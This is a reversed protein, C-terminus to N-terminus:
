PRYWGCDKGDRFISRKNKKCFYFTHEDEASQMLCTNKLLFNLM